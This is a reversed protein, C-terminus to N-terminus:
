RRSRAWGPRASKTLCRSTASATACRATAADGRVRPDDRAVGRGRPHDDLRAAVEYLDAADSWQQLEADALDALLDITRLEELDPPRDAITQQEADTHHGTDISM